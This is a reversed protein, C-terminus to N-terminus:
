GERIYPQAPFSIRVVHDLSLTAQWKGDPGHLHLAGGHPSFSVREPRDIDYSDRSTLHLTFPEFPNADLLPRIDAETM